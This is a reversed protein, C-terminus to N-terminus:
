ATRGFSGTMSATWSMTPSLMWLATTTPSSRRSRPIIVGISTSRESAPPALSWSGYPSGDM